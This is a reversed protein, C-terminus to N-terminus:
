FYFQWLYAFDRIKTTIPAEVKYGHSISTVTSWILNIDHHSKNCGTCTLASILATSFFANIGEWM